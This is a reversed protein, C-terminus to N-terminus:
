VNQVELFYGEITKRDQMGVSRKMLNGNKFFLLTPVGAIELQAALERNADVDLTLVRHNEAMVHLLPAMMQCPRCWAAGFEVLTVEPSQIAIEFTEDM